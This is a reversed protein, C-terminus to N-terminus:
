TKNRSVWKCSLIFYRGVIFVGLAMLASWLMHNHLDNEYAWKRKDAIEQNFSERDRKASEKAQEVLQEYEEQNIDKQRAM